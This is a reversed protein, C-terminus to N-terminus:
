KQQIMRIRKKRKGKLACLRLSDSDSIAAKLTERLPLLLVRGSSFREQQKWGELARGAAWRHCLSCSCLPFATPILSIAWTQRRSCAPWPSLAECFCSCCCGAIGRLNADKDQVGRGRMGNRLNGARSIRKAWDVVIGGAAEVALTFITLMAFTIGIKTTRRNIARFITSKAEPKASAHACQNRNQEEHKHVQSSNNV